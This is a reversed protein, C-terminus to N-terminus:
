ERYLMFFEEMIKELEDDEVYFLDSKESFAKINEILQGFRWNPVKLWYYELLEIFHPIRSISRM